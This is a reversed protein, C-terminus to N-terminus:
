SIRPVRTFINTISSPTFQSEAYTDDPQRILVGIANPYLGVIQFSFGWDPDSIGLAEDLDIWQGLSAMIGTQGDNVDPQIDYRTATSDDPDLSSDPATPLNLADIMM